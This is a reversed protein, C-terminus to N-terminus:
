RPTQPTVIARYQLEMFRTCLYEYNAFEHFMEKECTGRGIIAHKQKLIAYM